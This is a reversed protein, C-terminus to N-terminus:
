QTIEEQVNEIVTKVAEGKGKFPNNMNLLHPSFLCFEGILVIFMISWMVFHLVSEGSISRIQNSIDDLLGFKTSKYRFSKTKFTYYLPELLSTNIDESNLIERIAKASTKDDYSFDTKYCVFVYVLSVLIFTAVFLSPYHADVYKFLYIPIMTTAGGILGFLTSLFTGYGNLFSRVGVIATICGGVPLLMTWYPHELLTSTNDIGFILLLGIWIAVLTYFFFQASLERGHAMRWDRRVDEIREETDKQAKVFRKYFMQQADLSGLKLVWEKLTNEYSYEDSFDQHPNEHYFTSLWQSLSGTRLENRISNALSKDDLDEVKSLVKGNPLKYKPTAGLIACYRYLATHLDYASLRERNEESTLDFCSNADATEQYWGHLQAFYYFRGQPNIFDDMENKLDDINMHQVKQLHASLIEGVAQPTNAEKLDYAADRDMNYLVKYALAMSFPQNQTLIRLSECAMVDEHCYMWSLLRGDILSHWDDDQPESVGFSHVIEQMNASPQNSLFPVDPDIEYVLRMVAVHPLADPTFYSRLRDVDAKTRSELWLFLHNNPNQLEMAYREKHSLLSIAISHVDDCAENNVDYYPYELDMAYISAMLGAEQDVPFRNTIIDKVLASLKLNGCTELWATIRGNYLYNIALKKNELLMPILERLNDAVLNRDPDVIFSKYRLFPSSMDIPVDEGLFWREVEEYKWRSQPNVCTLGQVLRKVRPPLENLRPLRGESKQRMMVRENSSMPNEGLWLAFLTMGLSYFDAAPTIEVEGDIVDTYMEPAAYIPTRAQTTRFVKGDNELMASIGFDGLVLQTHNEDRFFFNSPKVDKHLINNQHCYALSAAAQLAIRRFKDIDGQLAFEQFTGGKLYEMLEYYRHKGDVYTKGFDYLRVIMEFQFNHITQMLKRNINYNPYYVKLVLEEDRGKVLFIQAEGSTDSLSRVLPYFTGKIMFGEQAGDNMVFPEDDPLLDPQHTIAADATGGTIEAPNDIVVTREAVLTRDAVVTRDSLLTRDAVITRDGADIDNNSTSSNGLVTRDNMDDIFDSM